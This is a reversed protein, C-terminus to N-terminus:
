RETHVVDGEFLRVERRIVNDLTTTVTFTLLQRLVAVKTSRITVDVIPPPAQRRAPQHHRWREPFQAALAKAIPDGDDSYKFM